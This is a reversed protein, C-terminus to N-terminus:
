RGYAHHQRTGRTEEWRAARGPRVGASFGAKEVYSPSIGALSLNAGSEGSSPPTLQSSTESICALPTLYDIRRPIPFSEQRRLAGKGAVFGSFPPKEEIRQRAGVAGM